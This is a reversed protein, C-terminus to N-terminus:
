PMFEPFFLHVLPLPDIELEESTRDQGQVTYQVGVLTVNVAAAEPLLLVVELILGLPPNAIVTPAVLVMGWGLAFEIPLM